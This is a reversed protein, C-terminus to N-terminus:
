RSVILLWHSIFDESVSVNVNDAVSMYESDESLLDSLYSHLVTLIFINPEQRCPEQNQATVLGGCVGLRVSSRIGAGRRTMGRGCRDVAVRGVVREM